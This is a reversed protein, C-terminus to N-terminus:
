AKKVKYGCTMKGKEIKALKSKILQRSLPSMRDIFMHGLTHDYEHQVVRAPYGPIEETHEVLNEDQYRIVVTDKRTVRGSIGPLSLCGEEMTVDNGKTELIEANIFVKKWDAWEPHEDDEIVSLDIVFLKLSLGVQPAALGIGNGCKHLTEFMDDLLQPLNEYDAPIEEAEKRLVPNGYLYIPYVM